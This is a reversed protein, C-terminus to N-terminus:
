PVVLSTIKSHIPWTWELVVVQVINESITLVIIRFLVGTKPCFTFVFIMLKTPPSAPYQKQRIKNSTEFFLINFVVNTFYFSLSKRLMNQIFNTKDHFYSIWKRTMIDIVLIPRSLCKKSVKRTYTTRARSHFTQTKGLLDKFKRGVM